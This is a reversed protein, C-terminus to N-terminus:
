NSFYQYTGNKREGPLRIEFITLGNKMKVSIKGAHQRVIERCLSLEIGTGRGQGHPVLQPEFIVEMLQPSIPIGDDVISVLVEETEPEFQSCIGVSHKKDDLTANRALLLLTLWLDELQQPNGCVLPLDPELNINLLTSGSKQIHTGALLVAKEITENISLKEQNNKPAESFKLLERIVNQARWGAQVIASASEFEAKQNPISNVLLQAEAIITTLPNSIQHAISAALEGIAAMRTTQALHTQASKLQHEIEKRQHIDRGVGQYDIIKSNNEYIARLSWEQWRFSNAVLTRMEFRSIPRTPNCALIAQEVKEFDDPHVLAHFLTGNFETREKHYYNCFTENVFTFKLAPDIRFILETQHDEVIARYRAESSQVEQAARKQNLANVVLDAFTRMLHVHDPQWDHIEHTMVATVIGIVESNFVMPIFIISKIGHSAFFGKEAKAETPLELANNILLPQQSELKQMLWPFNQIEIIGARKKIRQSDAISREFGCLYTFKNKNETLYIAGIDPRVYNGILLLSKEIGMDTNEPSINIFFNSISSLLKEVILRQQLQHSIMKYATIDQAIGIMEKPQGSTDRSFITEHSSYWNWIGQADRMRFEFGNKTTASECFGNQHYQIISALDDPHVLDEFCLGSENDNEPITLITTIQPNVFRLTNTTLNVIYIIDPSSAIIKELFHQTSLHEQQHIKTATIERAIDMYGIVRSHQGDYMPTIKSHLWHVNGSKDKYEREVELIEPPTNKDIYVPPKFQNFYVKEAQQGAAQHSPLAFLEAAVPNWYTIQNQLDWGVVSDRVNNLLAAQYEIQARNQKNEVQVESHRIARALVSALVKFEFHGKVLYDFAGAQIAKVAIEENGEGTMMVIPTINGEATLKKLIELGTTDPLHYDMFILDYNETQYAHWFHESKHTQTVRCHATITLFDAMLQALIRDDDLILVKKTEANMTTLFHYMLTIQIVM